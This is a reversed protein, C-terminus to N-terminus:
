PLTTDDAEQDIESVRSRSGIFKELDKRSLGLRDMHYKIAEIPDPLGIPYHEETRIPKIDM